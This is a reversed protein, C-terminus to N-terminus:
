NEGLEATVTQRAYGLGLSAARIAEAVVDFSVNPDAYIVVAVQPRAAVSTTIEEDAEVNAEIRMM